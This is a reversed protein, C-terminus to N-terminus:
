EPWFEVRSSKDLRGRPSMVIQMAMKEMKATPRSMV